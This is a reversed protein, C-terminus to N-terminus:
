VGELHDAIAELGIRQKERLAKQLRGIVHWLALNYESEPYDSDNNEIMDRVISLAEELGKKM